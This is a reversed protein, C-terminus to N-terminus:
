RAIKNTFVFFNLILYSLFTVPIVIITMAIIRSNFIPELWNILELYILYIAGYCIFFRPFRSIRVDTFVIGGTTFFNFIMGILNSILLVIWTPMESLALLAYVTLGFLTNVGGVILFRLFNSELIISIKV